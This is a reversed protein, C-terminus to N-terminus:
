RGRSRVLYDRFADVTEDPLWNNFQNFSKEGAYVEMWSIKKKGGYAKAVAADFV